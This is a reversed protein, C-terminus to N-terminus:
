VPKPTQSLVRFIITLVGAVANLIAYVTISVHVEVLPLLSTVLNMLVVAISWQITWLKGSQKWDDILKM